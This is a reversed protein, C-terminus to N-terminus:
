TSTKPGHDDPDHDKTGDHEHDDHQHDDADHEHEDHEHDDADHEHDDHQHDDADHEHEDHEDDTPVDVSIKRIVYQRLVVFSAGMSTELTVRDGDIDIIHGIIGGATLVEDGVEFQNVLERQNKAKQRQPRLILFYFGAAVVILILLTSSSGSPKKAAAAALTSLPASLAALAAMM